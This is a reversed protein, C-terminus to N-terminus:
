GRPLGEIDPNGAGGDRGRNFPLFRTRGNQLRTTMSVNDEDTAFHVLAGRKFTLLPEGSPSRDDRYQKEAHRFTSGALLNKLEVTVVPLGTDFLVVDIANENKLSYRVQRIISLINAEYLRVLDANLGSAPKFFCLSFKIGPILKIGQRLVDLTSRTKLAKELQKFFEAEAATTYQAELKTWEEAQTEKVFRLVLARDM